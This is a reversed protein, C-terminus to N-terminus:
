RSWRCCPCCSPQGTPRASPVAQLSDLVNGLVVVGPESSSGSLPTIRTDQSAEATLGIIVM